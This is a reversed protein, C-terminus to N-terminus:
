HTLAPTALRAITTFGIVCLILTAWRSAADDVFHKLVFLSALAVGLLALM